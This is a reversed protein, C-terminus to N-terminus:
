RIAGQLLASVTFDGNGTPTLKIQYIGNDLSITQSPTKKQDAREITLTGDLRLSGTGSGDLEPTALPTTSGSRFEVTTTDSATFTVSDRPQSGVAVSTKISYTGPAVGHVGDLVLTIAGGAVNCAVAGLKLSGGDGSLPLPQGAQWDISTSRGDVEVPTFTAGGVGRDTPTVTFPTALTELALGNIQAATVSGTVRVQNKGVPGSGAPTTAPSSNIALVGGNDDRTHTAKDWARYGGITAGAVLAVIAM